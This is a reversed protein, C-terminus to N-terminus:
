RLLGYRGAGRINNGNQGTGVAIPQPPAIPRSPQGMTSGPGYMGPGGFHLPGNQGMTSGPQFNGTLPKNYGQPNTLIGPTPTSGQQLPLQQAGHGGPNNYGPGRPTFPYSPSPRGPTGGQQVGLPPMTPMPGSGTGSDIMGQGDFPTGGPMPMGGKGGMGPMSTGPMGPGNPNGIGGTGPIPNGNQDLQGIMGVNGAGSIAGPGAGPNTASGIPNGNADIPVSPLQGGSNGGQNLIPNGLLGLGSM